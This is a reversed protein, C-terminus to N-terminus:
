SYGSEQRSTVWHAPAVVTPDQSVPYNSDHAIDHVAGESGVTETMRLISRPSFHLQVYGAPPTASPSGSCAVLGSMAIAATASFLVARFRMM